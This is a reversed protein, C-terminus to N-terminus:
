KAGFLGAVGLLAGWYMDVAGGAVRPDGTSTNMHYRYYRLDFSLRAELWPMFRYNAGLNADLGYVKLNPFWADSKIDGAGFIHRYAGGAFLSFPTGTYYRAGVGARLLTYNVNPIPQAMTAEETLGEFKSQHLGGGVMLDLAVPGTTIGALASGIVEQTSLDYSLDDATTARMRAGYQGEIAVGVRPTGLLPFWAVGFGLAASPRSTKFEALPAEPVNRYSLSRTSIRPGVYVEIPVPGHTMPASPEEPEEEVRPPRRRVEGESSSSAESREAREARETRESRDTRDSREPTETAPRSLPPPPPPPPPAGALPDSTDGRGGERLGGLADRFAPWIGTQVSKVLPRTGKKSTWSDQGIVSGDQGDRLVISAVLNKGKKKVGGSLVALLNQDTALARAADSENRAGPFAGSELEIVRYRRASLARVTARQVEEAGPGTFPIIGLRREAAAAPRAALAGLLAWSAAAMLGM